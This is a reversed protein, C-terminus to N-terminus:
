QTRSFDLGANRPQRPRGMVDAYFEAVAMSRLPLAVDKADDRLRLVHAVFDFEIDFYRQGHPVPGTTLGRSTVYLPAQWSHNLWPTQALRVKGVVQTWLHLAECTGSWEAYPLEPWPDAASTDAM